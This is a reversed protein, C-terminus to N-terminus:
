GKNRTMWARPLVLQRITLRLASDCRVGAILETKAVRHVLRVGALRYAIKVFKLLLRHWSGAPAQYTARLRAADQAGVDRMLYSKRHAHHRDVALLEDLRSFRHRQALRLWLERDMAYDYTEDVLFDATASRRIFAAPQVVYNSFSLLRSHHPPVWMAQLCLGDADVLVAHGYVVDVRPDAMFRAVAKSVVESHVYADDSNLWGIIEGHSARFAKNIAESQGGDPESRWVVGRGAESQLLAVSGDTSGGDMVIHEIHEYTQRRVSQLNDGLWRAQNFSPTLVSVLPRYM